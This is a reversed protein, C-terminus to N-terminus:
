RVQMGEPWQVFQGNSLIIDDAYSTTPGLPLGGTFVGDSGPSLITYDLGQARYQLPHRWGDEIPLHKLYTPTLYPALQEATAGSLRPVFPFDTGYASVALALARIEAMSRKQRSREMAANLAPIAIAAVIGVIAVVILLELLTFGRGRTDVALGM